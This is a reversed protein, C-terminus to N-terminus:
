CLYFLLIGQRMTGLIRAFAVHLLSDSTTKSLLDSEFLENNMEERVVKISQQNTHCELLREDGGGNGDDHGVLVVVVTAVLGDDQGIGAFYM